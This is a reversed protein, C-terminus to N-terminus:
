TTSLIGLTRAKAVAQTRSNVGLKGYINRNHTKVTYMSLILRAAIEQNTLGEAILQLVEIERESLPEIYGSEPVQSVSQEIQEPEKIPFGQLLRNVYNPAIGRDLAKYLLRAMPQGEDVFIRYFGRPKGLNFSKEIIALAQNMDGGSQFTLAQLILFEIERTIDDGMQAAELLRELISISEKLKGQAILIRAFGVYEMGDFYSLKKNLDPRRENMWLLAAELKNQALWIRAQWTANQNIIWIPVVSDRAVHNLKQVIDQAGAIDGKSFLVRTLCLYSWGLIVVDEGHVTLEISKEVLETAQNLDNTEALAEGWIAMLWGVVATQSMGSEEAFLVRQQCLEQAQLLQGQEKLNLALRASNYIYLYTNGAAEFAKMAEIRAQNAARLDGSFAHADALTNMLAGRWHLDQDPLYELAQHLHRILGSIDHRWYIDMWAQFVAARGRVMLRNSASRQDQSQSDTEATHDTFPGQVLEAAKLISEAAEQHGSAFLGWARFISLQPRSLVLEDPLREIWRRLNTDGGRALVSDALREILNASREFDEALLAHEIAEDVFGNQEFWGSARQYLITPMEPQTQNLRKRLLESFLHHYRYWHREEDLPIIFLNAKELHELTAQGDEQNTLADCVPGTFRNLIATHLLFTEVNKPQQELVEEILYDLVLKHSGSFSKILQTTDERGRLSIAALQLGAIWGETRKELETIDEASLDLGMVQNLFEAAETATFRLDAARLESLQGSARFRSLPLHPDERTAIVLHMQPPINELFFSLADHISHNEILHYDDLVLIIKEPSAAIDNILSNLTIEPPPLQSSQLLGLDGKGLVSKIGEIQNLAAFFYSFFRIPDNDGEDLSLWAVRYSEKYNNSSGSKLSGLWETVLTTKGYGAPATILILKCGPYACTNLQDVLRPRHILEPRRPPIFLKTALLQEM